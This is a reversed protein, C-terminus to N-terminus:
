VALISYLTIYCVNGTSCITHACGDCLWYVIYHLIVYMVLVKYLKLVVMVCGVIYIYRLIVYM